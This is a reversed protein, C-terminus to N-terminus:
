PGEEPRDTTHTKPLGRRWRAILRDLWTGPKPEHWVAYGDEGVDSRGSPQHAGLLEAPMGFIEAAIHRVAERQEEGVVGPESAAPVWGADTVIHTPEPLDIDLLAIWRERCAESAFAPILGGPAPHGCRCACTVNTTM